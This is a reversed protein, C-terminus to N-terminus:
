KLVAMEGRSHVSRSRVRCLRSVSLWLILCFCSLFRRRTFFGAPEWSFFFDCRGVSVVTGKLVVFFFLDLTESPLQVLSWRSAEEFLDPFNFNWIQGPSKFCSFCALAFRGDVTAFSNQNQSTRVPKLPSPCGQRLYKWRWACVCFPKPRSHILGKQYALGNKV